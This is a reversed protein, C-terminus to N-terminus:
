VSPTSPTERVRLARSDRMLLGAVAVDFGACVAPYSGPLHSSDNRRHVADFAAHSLWGAALLRRSTRRPVMGSVLGMAVTAGVAAVERTRAAGSVGRPDALLYTAAAGVLFLASVAEPRKARRVTQHTVAGAFAGGAVAAVPMSSVTAAYDGTAIGGQSIVRPVVYFTNM